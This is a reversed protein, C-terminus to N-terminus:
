FLMILDRLHIYIFQKLLNLNRTSTLVFKSFHVIKPLKLVMVRSSFFLFSSLHGWKTEDAKQARNIIEKDYKFIILISVKTWESRCLVQSKSTFATHDSKQGIQNLFCMLSLLFGPKGKKDLQSGFKDSRM